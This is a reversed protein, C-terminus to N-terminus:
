TAPSAKARAQAAPAPGPPSGTVMSTSELM